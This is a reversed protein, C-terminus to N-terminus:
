RLSVMPHPGLVFNFSVDSFAIDTFDVGNCSLIQDGPRLGTERAIGM